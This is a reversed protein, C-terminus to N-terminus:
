AFICAHIHNDNCAVLTYVHAHFLFFCDGKLRTNLIVLMPHTKRDITFTSGILRTFLKNTVVIHHEKHIYPFSQHMSICILIFIVLIDHAQLTCSLWTSPIFSCTFTNFACSSSISCKTFVQMYDNTFQRTTFQRYHIHKRDITHVVQKHGCYSTRQTNIPFVLACILIFIVLIDHAQLTCSLWTSPIFSCTFTNFACSSSISCKTFVQM